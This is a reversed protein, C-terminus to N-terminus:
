THDDETIKRLLALFQEREEPTLTGTLERDAAQFITRADELIPVSLPTLTLHQFRRDKLDVDVTLLGRTALKLVNGSVSAKSMGCQLAVDRATDTDPHTDLFLLIQMEPASLQWKEAASSVLRDFVGTGQRIFTLIVSGHSSM